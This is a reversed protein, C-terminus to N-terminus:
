RIHEAKAADAMKRPLEIGMWRARYKQQGAPWYDKLFGGTM